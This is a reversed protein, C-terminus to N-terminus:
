LGGVRQAQQRLQCAVKRRVGPRQRPQLHRRLLAGLPGHVAADQLHTWMTSMYRHRSELPYVGAGATGTPQSARCHTACVDGPSSKRCDLQKTSRAGFYKSVSGQVVICGYSVEDGRLASLLGKCRLDACVQHQQIAMEQVGCVQVQKRYQVAHALLHTFGPNAGRSAAPAMAIMCAEQSCAGGQCGRSRSSAEVNTHAQLGQATISRRRRCTYMPTSARSPPPSHHEINCTARTPRSCSVPSPPASTAPRSARRASAAAAASTRWRQDCVRLIGDSGEWSRTLQRLGCRVSAEFTGFAFGLFGM